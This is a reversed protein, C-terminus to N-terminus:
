FVTSRNGCVYPILNQSLVNTQTDRGLPLSRNYRRFLYHILGLIALSFFTIIAGDMFWALRNTNGYITLKEPNFFVLYLPKYIYIGIAVLLFLAPFIKGLLRLVPRPQPITEKM